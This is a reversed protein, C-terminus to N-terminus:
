FKLRAVQKKLLSFNTLATFFFITDIYRLPRYGCLTMLSATLYCWKRLIKAPSLVERSWDQVTGSLPFIEESLNGGTQAELHNCAEVNKILKKKKTKWKVNTYTSQYLAKLTNYGLSQINSCAPLLNKSIGQIKKHWTLISTTLRHFPEWTSILSFSFRCTFHDSCPRPSFFPLLAQLSQKSAAWGGVQLLIIRYYIHWHCTLLTILGTLNYHKKHKFADAEIVNKRM